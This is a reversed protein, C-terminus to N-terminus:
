FFSFTTGKGQELAKEYIFNATCLDQIAMGTTDFITIENDNVRGPKQGLVLEGIEAYIDNRTIIGQAIPHQTEGKDICQEISDNVIRAHRFIEPDLEQKGKCDTGVAVIHTGPKIWAAEVISGKGRTTTILIDAKEVAAQKTPEIIVPIGLEAEIDTMFKEASAPFADWAHVAEIKKLRSLARLQMRAHNGTGISTVIKADKRAMLESSIAGAAGTRYGTIYTGDMICLIAGTLGDYLTVLNIGAPLNYKTPNEAFAGASSKISLRDSGGDYGAKFDIEGRPAPLPLAMYPPQIVKHQSFSRYAARVAEIADDMTLISFVEEKNLLLTNM